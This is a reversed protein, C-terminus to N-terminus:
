GGAHDVTTGLGFSTLFGVDLKKDYKRALAALEADQDKTRTQMRSLAEIRDRDARAQDGEPGPVKSAEDAAAKAPEFAGAQYMQQVKEGVAKDEQAFGGMGPIKSVIWELPKAILQFLWEFAM